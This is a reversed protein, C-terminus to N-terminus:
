EVSITGKLGLADLPSRPDRGLRSMVFAYRGPTLSCATTYRGPPVTVTLRHALGDAFVPRGSVTDSGAAAVTKEGVRCRVDEVSDKPEIFVLRIADSTYNAFELAEGQRITLAGPLLLGPDIVTITHSGRPDRMPNDAAGAIGVALVLASSLIPVLSWFARVSRGPHPGRHQIPRDFGAIDEM